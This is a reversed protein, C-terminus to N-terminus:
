NKLQTLGILNLSPGVRLKTDGANKAYNENMATLAVKTQSLGFHYFLYSKALAENQLVTEKVPNWLIFNWFKDKIDASIETIFQIFNLQGNEDLAQYLDAVIKQGIPRLYFPGGDNRTLGVAKSGKVFKVALPFLEFFKDWFAYIRQTEAEIVDDTPRIRVKPNKYLNEAKLM